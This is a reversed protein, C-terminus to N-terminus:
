RKPTREQKMMQNRGVSIGFVVCVCMNKSVHRERELSLNCCIQVCWDEM